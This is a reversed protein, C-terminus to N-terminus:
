DYKAKYDKTVFGRDINGRMQGRWWWRGVIKGFLPADETYTKWHGSCLHLPVVRGTKNSNNYKKRSKPLKFHLIKYKFAKKEPKTKKRVKRTPTVEKTVVNKCNLVMLFVNLVVCCHRSISSGIEKYFKENPAYGLGLNITPFVILNGNSHQKVLSNIEDEREKQDTSLDTFNLEIIKRTEDYTFDKGVKMFFSEGCLLWGSEIMKGGSMHRSFGDNPSCFCPSIQIVDRDFHEGDPDTNTALLGFKFKAPKNDETEYSQTDTFDFWCIDYPLKVDIAFDGMFTPQDVGSETAKIIAKNTMDLIRDSGMHFHQAKGIADLLIEMNRVALSKKNEATRIIRNFDRMVQYGYM